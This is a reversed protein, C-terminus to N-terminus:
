PIMRSLMHMRCRGDRALSQASRSSPIGVVREAPGEWAREDGEGERSVSTLSKKFLAKLFNLFKM